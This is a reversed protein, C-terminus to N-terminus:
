IAWSIGVSRKGLSVGLVNDQLQHGHRRRVPKTLGSTRSPGPPLQRCRICCQRGRQNPGLRGVHPLFSRRQLPVKKREQVWRSFLVLWLGPKGVPRGHQQRLWTVGREDLGRAIIHRSFHGQGALQGVVIPRNPSHGPNLTGFGGSRQQLEFAM